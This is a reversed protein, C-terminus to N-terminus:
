ASNNKNVIEEFYEIGFFSSPYKIKSLGYQAFMKAKSFNKKELAKTLAWAMRIETTMLNLGNLKNSKGNHLSDLDEPEIQELFDPNAKIRNIVPIAIEKITQVINDALKRNKDEDDDYTWWFDSQGRPSLRTRFECDVYRMKKFNLFRSGDTDLSKPQIGLEACCQGSYRGAQIGIAFLFHETDLLYDFGSGKFGLDRLQKGLSQGIQKKFEVTTIM